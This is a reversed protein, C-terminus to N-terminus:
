HTHTQHKIIFTLMPASVTEQPSHKSMPRSHPAPASIPIKTCLKNALMNCFLCSVNLKVTTFYTTTQLKKKYKFIPSPVGM